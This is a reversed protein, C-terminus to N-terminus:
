WPTRPSAEQVHGCVMWHQAGPSAAHLGQGLCCLGAGASGLTWTTGMKRGALGMSSCGLSVAAGLARGELFGPGAGAPLEVATFVLVEQRESSFHLTSICGTTRPMVLRKPLSVPSRVATPAGMAVHEVQHSM